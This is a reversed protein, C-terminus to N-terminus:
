GGRATQYMDKLNWNAIDCFPNKPGGAAFKPFWPFAPIGRFRAITAAERLRAASIQPGIGGLVRGMRRHAADAGGADFPKGDWLVDKSWATISISCPPLLPPPRPEKSRRRRSVGDEDKDNMIM